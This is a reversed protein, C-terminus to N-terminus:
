AIAQTQVNNVSGPPLTSISVTQAWAAGSVVCAASLSAARLFFSKMSKTELQGALAPSQNFALCRTAPRRRGREVPVAGSQFCPHKANM